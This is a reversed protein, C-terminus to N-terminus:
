NLLVVKEVGETTSILDVSLVLKLKWDDKGNGTFGRCDECEEYTESKKKM